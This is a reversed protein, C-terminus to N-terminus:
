DLLSWWSPRSERFYISGRDRMEAFELVWFRIENQDVGIIFDFSGETYGRRKAHSKQVRGRVTDIRVRRGKSCEAPRIPTYLSVTKVQVSKWGSSTFVLLDFGESNGYPIAVKKGQKILETLVLLESYDGKQRNDMTEERM